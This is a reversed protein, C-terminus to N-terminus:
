SMLGDLDANTQKLLRCVSLVFTRLAFIMFPVLYSLALYLYKM